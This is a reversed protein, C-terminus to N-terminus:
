SQDPHYNNCNARVVSDINWFQTFIFFHCNIACVIHYITNPRTGLKTAWHLNSDPWVHLVFHCSMITLWWRTLWVTFCCSSCDCQHWKCSSCAKSIFDCLVNIYDKHHFPTVFLFSRGIINVHTGLVAPLMIGEFKSM